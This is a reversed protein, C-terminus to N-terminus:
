RTGDGALNLVKAAERDTKGAVLLEVAALQQESLERRPQGNRETQKKM